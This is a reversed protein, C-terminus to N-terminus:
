DVKYWCLCCFHPHDRSCCLLPFAIWYICQRLSKCFRQPIVQKAEVRDCTTICRSRKTAMALLSAPCSKLIKRMEHLPNTTNSFECWQVIQIDSTRCVQVVFRRCHWVGVRRYPCAQDPSTVGLWLRGLVGCRVRWSDLLSRAAPLGPVYLCGKGWRCIQMSSPTLSSSLQISM